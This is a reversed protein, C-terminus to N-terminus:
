QRDQRLSRLHAAFTDYDPLKPHVHSARNVPDKVSSPDGAAGSTKASYNNGPSETKLAAPISPQKTASPRVSNKESSVTPESSLQFTSPKSKSTPPSQRTPAAYDVNGPSQSSSKTKPHSSRDDSAVAADKTRRSFAQGAVSKGAASKQEPLEREAESDDSDFFTRRSGSVKNVEVGGSNHNNHQGEESGDFKQQSPRDKVSDGDSFNYSRAPNRLSTRRRSAEQPPVQSSTDQINRTSTVEEVAQKSPSPNQTAPNKLYPPLKYGKNRIGGALFGFNLEKGSASGSGNEDDGDSDGAPLLVPTQFKEDVDSSNSRSQALSISPRNPDGYQGDDAKIGGVGVGQINQHQMQGEHSDASSPRLSSQRNNYGLNENEALSSSGKLSFSENLDHYHLNKSQVHSSTSGGDENESSPGDSDDFTVPLLADQQSPVANSILGESAISSHNREITFLSSSNSKRPSEYISKKGPCWANTRSPFHSGMSSQQDKLEDEVHLNYAEGDDSGHDDFVAAAVDYSCTEKANVRNRAQGIVFLDVSTADDSSKHRDWTSTSNEDFSPIKSHPHNRLGSFQHPVSSEEFCDFAEHKIVGHMNGGIIDMEHDSPARGMNKDSSIDSKDSEFSSTRSHREVTDHNSMSPSSVIEPPGNSDSTAALRGKLNYFRENLAALIDEETDDTQQEYNVRSNSKSTNKMPEKSPREDLFRSGTTLRQGVDDRHSFGSAFHSEERSQRRNMNDRSSLEAAARAAMSAREASEAAAQAATTADKFETNWQQHSGSSFNGGSRDHSHRYEVGEPGTGPSTRQEPHSFASSMAKSSGFDDPRPSQLHSSPQSSPAYSNMSGDHKGHASAHSSNFNQPPDVDHNQAHMTYPSQFTGPGNLLDEPPKIDGEFSKPDWKVNHELAIASLIKMKEPGDSAKASLKEVLLRSVGCNPRLEVAASVFEKGYKATFHKKVDALEPLHPIGVVEADATAPGLEVMKTVESRGSAQGERGFRRGKEGRESVVSRVSAPPLRHRCLVQFGVFSARNGRERMERFGSLPM